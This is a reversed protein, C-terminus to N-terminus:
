KAICLRCSFLLCFCGRGSLFFILLFLSAPRNLILDFKFPTTLCNKELHDIIM